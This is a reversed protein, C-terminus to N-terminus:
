PRRAFFKTRPVPLFPPMGSSPSPATPSTPPPSHPTPLPLVLSRTRETACAALRFAPTGAPQRPQTESGRAICACFTPARSSADMMLLMAFEVSRLRPVGGLWGAPVGASRHWEHDAFEEDGIAAFDSHANRARAALRANFGDKSVGLRVVDTVNPAIEILGDGEARAVRALRVEVDRTHDIRRAFARGAGNM